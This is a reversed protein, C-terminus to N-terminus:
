DMYKYDYYYGAEAAKEMSTFTEEIADKIEDTEPLLDAYSYLQRTEGDVSVTYGVVARTKEIRAGGISFASLPHLTTVDWGDIFSLVTPGQIPNVEKITGLGEPIYIFENGRGTHEQFLYMLYDSVNTNIERLITTKSIGVDEMNVKRLNGDKLRYATATGLNLAYYAGDKTYAYPYKLSGQLYWSGDTDEHPTYIYYGDYAAVCFIPIYNGVEQRAGDSMVFDYNLCMINEFTELAVEPDVVFSGIDADQSDAYDQGLHATSELMEAAAADTAYDISLTLLYHAIDETEDQVHGVVCLLTVALFLIPIALIIGFGRNM